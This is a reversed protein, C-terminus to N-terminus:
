PSSLPEDWAGFADHAAVGIFAVVGVLTGAVTGGGRAFSLVVGTALGVSGGAAGGVGKAMADGVGCMGGECPVDDRSAASAWDVGAYAGGLVTALVAVLRGLGRRRWAVGAVMLLAALGVKVGLVFLTDRRWAALAWQREPSLPTRRCIPRSAPADKAGCLSLRLEDTGRAKRALARELVDAATARLEPTTPLAALLAPDISPPSARPDDGQRRLAGDAAYAALVRTAAADGLRAIASLCRSRALTAVPHNLAAPPRLVTADLQERDFPAALTCLVYDAVARGMSSFSSPSASPSPSPAQSLAAVLRASEHAAYARHCDASVVLSLPELADPSPLALDGFRPTAFSEILAAVGDCRDRPQPGGLRWGLGPNLTAGVSSPFPLVTLVAGSSLPVTVAAGWRRWRDVLPAPAIEYGPALEACLAASVPQMTARWPASRGARELLWIESSTTGAAVSSPPHCLTAQEATTIIFRDDSPPPVAAAAWPVLRRSVEHEAWRWRVPDGTLVVVRSDPAYRRGVLSIEGTRSQRAALAALAIPLTGAMSWRTGGPPLVEVTRVPQGGEEGGIAAVSGDTLRLLVFDNRPSSLSPAGSWSGSVSSWRECKARSGGLIDGCVLVDGGSLEVGAGHEHVEALLGTVVATPAPEPAPVSPAVPPPPPPGRAEGRAWPTLVALALWAACRGIRAVGRM